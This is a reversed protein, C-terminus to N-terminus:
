DDAASVIELQPIIMCFNLVMSDIRIKPINHLRNRTDPTKPCFGSSHKQMAFDHSLEYASGQRHGDFPWPSMLGERQEQGKVGEFAASEAQQLQTNPGEQECVTRKWAPFRLTFKVAL